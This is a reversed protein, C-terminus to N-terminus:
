QRALAILNLIDSAKHLRSFITYVIQMCSVSKAVVPQDPSGDNALVALLPVDVTEQHAAADHSQANLGGKELPDVGVGNPLSDNPQNSLVNLGLFVLWHLLKIGLM